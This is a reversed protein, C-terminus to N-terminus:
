FNKYKKKKYETQKFNKSSPLSSHEAFYQRAKGGKIVTRTILLVRQEGKKTRYRTATANIKGNSMGVKKLIPGKFSAFNIKKSM